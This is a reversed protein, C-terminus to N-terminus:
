SSFLESRQKSPFVYSFLPHFNRNRHSMPIKGKKINPLFITCPLPSSHNEKSEKVYTIQKQKQWMSAKTWVITSSANRLPFVYNWWYQRGGVM